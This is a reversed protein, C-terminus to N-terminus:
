AFRQYEQRLADVFRDLEQLRNYLAPTVRIAAGGAIGRRAVTLVQYKNLLLSSLRQAQAYDRLGPLRFSTVAGYREPDEPTLIEIGKLDRVREVWYRRLSQLHRMKRGGGVRDHFDIAAPVTLTAAFNVTGVSTRSRTDDEPFMTSGMCPEIDALRSARIWVGGTGIPANLWKHLSFGVFDADLDALKFDMHAVTQAADVVTDVGRARALAVIERVPMVLGTRNSLHTVLLMKLNAPAAKLQKEYAALINATTAPEPIQFRIVTVPMECCLLM